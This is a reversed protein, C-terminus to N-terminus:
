FSKKMYEPNWLPGGRTKVFGQILQAGAIISYVSHPNSPPSIHYSTPRMIGTDSWATRLTTTLPVAQHFYKIKIYRFKTTKIQKFSVTSFKDTFRMDAQFTQKQNVHLYKDGARLNISKKQLTTLKPGCALDASVPSPLNRGLGFIQWFTWLQGM